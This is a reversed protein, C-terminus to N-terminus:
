KDRHDGKRRNKQIKDLLSNKCFKDTKLASFLINDRRKERGISERKSLTTTCM